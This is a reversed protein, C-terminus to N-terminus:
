SPEAEEWTRCNGAIRRNGASAGPPLLTQTQPPARLNQSPASLVDAADPWAPALEGFGATRVLVCAAVRVATRLTTVVTVQDCCKGM